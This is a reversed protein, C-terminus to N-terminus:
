FNGACSDLVYCLFYRVSVGFLSGCFLVVGLYTFIYIYIYIHIHIYVYIYIYIHICVYIYIYVCIYEYINM